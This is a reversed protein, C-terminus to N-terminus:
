LGTEETSAPEHCAERVLPVIQTDFKPPVTRLDFLLRDKSIRGFLAPHGERLRAALKEVSMSKPTLAVAISPITQGPVSGGGLMSESEIIEASALSELADLQPCIREARHQLNELSTSLMSLLPIKQEAQAEDRYLRLTADLAALTLKDVRLSRALPHKLMKEIWKQKGVVIGCQPGGLLKDGSFLVVDAGAEISKKVVPEEIPGYKSLDVLSGSGIDDIVPLSNKKGLEVLEKLGVSQTFGVVEFNSPHVKLIAGTEDGIANRYDDIRTKNTTGVEKLIAGSCEMVDPLRYSGGIEILQGRSVIVQKGGALAALALLTAAANNNVVMAAEAGTVQKLLDQVVFVRQSREGSKVDVELNCYGTAIANISDLAQEALPARGLGTHLMIGTANIVPVLGPKEARSVWAAVREALEAPDPVNMQTATEQVQTRVDDLIKRVGEVVVSHNVQEVMKQLRPNGLLENVSPLSRLPNPM